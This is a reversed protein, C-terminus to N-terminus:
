KVASLAKMAREAKKSGCVMCYYVAPGGNTTPMWVLAKVGEMVSAVEPDNTKLQIVWGTGPMWDAYIERIDRVQSLIGRIEQPTKRWMAPSLFLELKPLFDRM